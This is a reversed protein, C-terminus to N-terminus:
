GGTRRVRGRDGTAGGDGPAGGDGTADRLAREAARVAAHAVARRAHLEREASRSGALEATTRELRREISARETELRSRRDVEEGIEDDLSETEARAREVAREAARIRRRRERSESESAARPRGTAGEDASEGARADPPPVRTDIPLAVAASVDIQDVGTSELARLLLGSRVAAAAAPDVVAAQLTEEVKRAVATSLGLGETARQLMRQRDRTSERVAAGDRDALAARLRDGVAILGEVEDPRGRVLANIAAAAATPKRLARVAGALERDTEAAAAANRRQVFEAPAAAYLEDALARLDM